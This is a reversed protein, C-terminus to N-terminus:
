HFYSVLSSISLESRGKFQAQGSQFNSSSLGLTDAQPTNFGGVERIGQQSEIQQTQTSLQKAQQKTVAPQGAIKQTSYTGTQPNFYLKKSPTSSPKSPTAASKGINGKTVGTQGAIKQTSYSNTKPNYYYLKSSSSSPSSGGSSQVGPESVRGIRGMYVM